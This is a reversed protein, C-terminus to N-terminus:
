RDDDVVVDIRGPRGGVLELGGHGGPRVARDRDREVVPAEGARVVLADARFVDAQGVEADVGRELGVLVGAAAGDRDPRVDADGLVAPIRHFGGLVDVAEPLDGAGRVAVGACAVGEDTVVEAERDGVRVDVGEVDGGVVGGFHLRVFAP